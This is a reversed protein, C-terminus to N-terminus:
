TGSSFKNDTALCYISQLKPQVASVSHSATWWFEQEGECIGSKLSSLPQSDLGWM